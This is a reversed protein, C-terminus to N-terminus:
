QPRVKEIGDQHCRTAAGERASGENLSAQPARVGVKLNCRRGPAAKMSAEVCTQSNGSIVRAFQLAKGASGENLCTWRSPRTGRYIANCRRGPAAKMSAPRRPGYISVLNCRRGPAAKMSASNADLSTSLIGLQLAKGASGENLRSSSRPRNNM